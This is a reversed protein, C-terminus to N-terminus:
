FIEIEDCAIVSNNISKNKNIRIEIQQEGDVMVEKELQFTNDEQILDMGSVKAIPQGDKLIEIKDPRLMRHRPNHLFRMRITKKREEVAVLKGSVNIDEAALLWGQNFDSPFGPLNDALLASGELAQMSKLELVNDVQFLNRHMPHALIQNWESIYRSIKGDTEKYHDQKYKKSFAALELVSKESKPNIWVKGEREALFGNEFNGSHYDFQLQTYALGLLLKDLKTKEEGKAKKSLESLDSHFKQFGDQDLYSKILDRFPLYIGIESKSRSSQQEIALLYDAILKGSIPYTRKCYSEVLDKSDLSPDIMMASLVYTKIDEFPSYDYGSGNLFIGNIGISRFYPLQNQFRNLVPYPSLYDDFNSIYDWLYVASIKNKWQGVLTGFDQVVTSSPNIKPSKTFDITSIFVGTNKEMQVSPAHKTTLYATTFFQYDPYQKALTNLLNTVAGTADATKNGLEKCTECTCAINNDNPAIMFYKVGNGEQGDLYAKIAALTEASSFCFQDKNIGKETQAYAREPVKGDFIKKFNHGWIGWDRDVSNTHYIGILDPDTNSLLHPERYHMAFNFQGPRFNIIAPPLDHADIDVKEGLQSILGYILWIMTERNKAFLSLKGPVNKIEYDFSLDPVLEFYLQNTKNTTDPSDTRIISLKNGTNRKSLHQNFYDAMAASSQDGNSIIFMKQEAFNFVNSQGKSSTCSSIAFISFLPITFRFLYM